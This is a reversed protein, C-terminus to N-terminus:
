QVQADLLSTNAGASLLYKALKLHGHRCAAHLPTTGDADRHNVSAWTARIYWM